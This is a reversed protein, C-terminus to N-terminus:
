ETWFYGEEGVTRRQQEDYNLHGPTGPPLDLPCVEDLNM